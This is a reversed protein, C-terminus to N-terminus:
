ANESAKQVYNGCATERQCVRQNARQSMPQSMPTTEYFRTQQCTNAPVFWPLSRLRVNQVTSYRVNALVVAAGGCADCRRQGAALVSASVGHFSHGLAMCSGARLAPQSLSPARYANGLSVIGGAAWAAALSAPTSGSKRYQRSNSLVVPMTVTGPLPKLCARKWGQLGCPRHM